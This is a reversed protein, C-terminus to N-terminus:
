LLLLLLLFLYWGFLPEERWAAVTGPRSPAAFSLSCPLWPARASPLGHALFAPPYDLTLARAQAEAQVLAQALAGMLAGAGVPGRVEAPALTQALTPAHVRDWAWLLSGHCSAHSRAERLHSRNSPRTQLWRTCRSWRRYGYSQQSGRSWAALLLFLSFDGLPTGLLM